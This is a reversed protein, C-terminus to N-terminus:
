SWKRIAVTDEYWESKARVVSDARVDVSGEKGQEPGNSSVNRIKLLGTSIDGAYWSVQGMGQVWSVSNGETNQFYKTRTVLYYNDYRM